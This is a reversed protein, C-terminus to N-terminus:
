NKGLNSNQLIMDAAQLPLLIWLVEIADTVFFPFLFIQLEMQSNLAKENWIASIFVLNLDLFDQM